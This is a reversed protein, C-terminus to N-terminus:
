RLAELRYFRVPPVEPSIDRWEARGTGGLRVSEVPFWTELDESAQVVVVEGPAGALTLQPVNDWTAQLIAPPPVVPAQLSLRVVGTEGGAGGVQIQYVEGAQATFQVASSLLIGLQADSPEDDSSAVTSLQILATGRFVSLQTDFQSGTTRVTVEGSAPARWTWWLTAGTSSGIPRPEDVELSAGTSIVYDVLSSGVLARRNVFDDNKPPQVPELVFEFRSRPSDPVEMALYYTAGAEALFTLEPAPGTAEGNSKLRTLGLLSEGAYVAMAPITWDNIPDEIRWRMTTTHPSTWRWWRSAQAVSGFHGPEGPEATAGMGAVWSTPASGTLLQAQAFNDNAPTPLQYLQVAFKFADLSLTDVALQLKEGARAEFWGFGGDPSVHRPVVTLKSLDTGRYIGLSLDLGRSWLASVWWRGSKPVTWEWWLSGRGLVGGHIPEGVERTAASNDGALVPASGAIATRAVFSDNAGLDSLLTLTLGFELEKPFWGFDSRQAFIRIWWTEGATVPASWRGLAGDSQVPLFLGDPTLAIVELGTFVEGNEELPTRGIVVRGSEPATWQVWRSDGRRVIGEYSPSVGVLEQATDASTNEAGPDIAFQLFYQLYADPRSGDIAPYVAIQYTTGAEAYFTAVGSDGTARVLVLDRLQDGRFVAATLAPVTQWVGLSFEPQDGPTLDYYGSRPARWSWWLSPSAGGVTPEGAERSSNEARVQVRPREGTLRLRDVFQDNTPVPLAEFELAAAPFWEDAGYVGILYTQGAQALFDPRGNPASSAVLFPTPGELWVAWNFPARIQNRIMARLDRPATWRWWRDVGPFPAALDATRTAGLLSGSLVASEGSVLAATAWTDSGVALALDLVIEGEEAPSDPSGDGSIWYAAGAVASFELERTFPDGPAREAVEPLSVLAGEATLTWVGMRPTSPSAELGAPLSALPVLPSGSVTRMRLRARGADPAIWLWWISRTAPQSAADVEGPAATAARHSATVSVAFGELLTARDWDDNVPPLGDPITTVSLTFLSDRGGISDIVLPYEVGPEVHFRIVNSTNTGQRYMVTRLEGSPSRRFQELYVPTSGVVSVEVVAAEAPRITWWRTHGSLGIGNLREGPEATAAHTQSEVSAASGLETRGAFSDNQWPEDLWLRLPGVGLGAVLIQLKEGATVLLAGPRYHSNGVALLSLGGDNGMRYVAVDNGQIEYNLKGSAPATWEWWISSVPRWAFPLVPDSPDRTARTLDCALIQDRENIRFRAAFLDNEPPAFPKLTIQCPTPSLVAGSTGGSLALHYEHGAQVEWDFGGAAFVPSMRYQLREPSDGEFVAAQLLLNTSNGLLRFSAVGSSPAIWSYWLSGPLAEPEGPERSGLLQPITWEPTAGLLMTRNAFRDNAPLYGLLFPSPEYPYTLFEPIDSWVLALQYRTGAVAEFMSWGDTTETKAVPILSALSDGRFIELRAGGFVTVMGSAPATWEWWTGYGRVSAPGSPDSPGPMLAPWVGSAGNLRRRDAFRYAPDAPLLKLDFQFSGLAQWGSHVVGYHPEGAVVPLIGTQVVGGVYSLSGLQTGRFLSLNFLGENTGRPITVFGSSPPTWTFWVSSAGELWPAAAVNTEGTAGVNHGRLSVSDGTLRTASAFLDNTQRPYFRVVLEGDVFQRRDFLASGVAVQLTEDVEVPLILELSEAYESIGSRVQAKTILADIRTGQFVRLERTAVNRWDVPTHVLRLFGPGPATWTWWVSGQIGAGWNPEGVELSSGGLDSPVQESVLLRRRFAFQDHAAGSSYELDRRVMIGQSDTLVVALRVWSDAWKRVDLRWPFQTSTAEPVQGPEIMGTLPDVLFVDARRGNADETDVEIQVMGDSGREVQFGPSVMPVAAGRFAAVVSAREDITRVNNAQGPVGLPERYVQVSPNSFAPLTDGGAMLTSVGNTRRYAHSDPYLGPQVVRNGPEADVALPGCGLMRGIIRAFERPSLETTVAFANSSGVALPAFTGIPGWTTRHLLVVLDAASRDRIEHAEDLYGDNANVLRQHTYELSEGFIFLSKPWYALRGTHVLRVRTRSGSNLLIQNAGDVLLQAQGPGGETDTPWIPFTSLVAVDVVQIPEDGVTRTWTLSVSSLWLILYLRLAPIWRDSNASKVFGSGSLTM